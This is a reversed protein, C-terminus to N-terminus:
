GYFYVKKTVGDWSVIGGLMEAAARVGVYTTGDILRFASVPKGDVYPTKTANDWSVPRGLADGLKRLPLYVHGDILRGYAVLVDNVVVKYKDEGNPQPVPSPTAPKTNWWGEGGYSENLDVPHGAVIQDNKYQWINAHPSRQGHSWAYTQWFHKAAGRRAMEDVVACSGYVGIEYGAPGIVAAAARLYAEIADFHKAGADFDVAFYIATGVPQGVLRAEQLAEAGDVAGAAAGGVARSASTEFVSVIQLGAATIAEAEARTLRKWAYREPVLYRCAFRYGATALAAATTANLPVSCDIGKTAM